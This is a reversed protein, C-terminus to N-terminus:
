IQIQKLYQVFSRVVMIDEEGDIKHDCVYDCMIGDLKSKLIYEQEKNFEQLKNRDMTLQEKGIYDDCM